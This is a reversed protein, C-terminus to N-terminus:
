LPLLGPLLSLRLPVERNAAWLLPLPSIALPPTVPYCHVLQRQAQAFTPTMMCHPCGKPPLSDCPSIETQRSPEKQQCFSLSRCLHFECPPSTYKSPKVPTYVGHVAKRGRGPGRKGRQIPTLLRHARAYQTFAERPQGLASWLSSEEISQYRESIFSKMEVAAPRSGSKIINAQVKPLPAAQPTGFLSTVDAFSVTIAAATAAATAKLQGPTQPFPTTNHDDFIDWLASPLAPPPVRPRHPPTPTDVIAAALTRLQENKWPPPIVTTSAGSRHSLQSFVTMPSDPRASSRVTPTTAVEPLLQSTMIDQVNRMLQSERVLSVAILTSTVM